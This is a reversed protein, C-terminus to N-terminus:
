LQVRPNTIAQVIDALTNVVILVIATFVTAGIILPYDSAAIARSILTGLGERSFVNEIVMTELIMYSFLLGVLQAIVPVINPRAYKNVVVKRPLGLSIAERVYEEELTESLSVRVVRAVVGIPYTSLAIATPILRLFSDIFIDLRGLLLSDITIMGTPGSFTTYMPAVRLGLYGYGVIYLALYILAAVLFRPMGALIVSVFYICKDALGGRSLSAKTGMWMSLPIAIAFSYIVIELSAVFNRVVLYSVPQKFEVSLGWDGVFFRYIHLALRQYIPLNLGLYERAKAIAIAAGPGRPKGAWIVAPDGPTFQTLIFTIAVIGLILLISIFIRKIIYNLTLM